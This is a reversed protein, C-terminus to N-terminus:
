QQLTYFGMQQDARLSVTSEDGDVKVEADIKVWPGGASDAGMLSYGEANVPWSLVIAPEIRLLEIRLVPPAVAQLVELSRFTALAGTSDNSLDRGFSQGMFGAPRALTDVFTQSYKASPNDAAWATTIVLAGGTTDNIAVVQLVVDTNVPDLPTELTMQQGTFSGTAIRGDGRINGFYAGGDGGNEQSQARTYVGAYAMEDSVRVVARASLDGSLVDRGDKQVTTLGLSFGELQFPETLVMDGNAIEITSPWGGPIISVPADDSVSGDEFDDTFPAFPTVAPDEEWAVAYPRVEVSRFQASAGRSIAGSRGFGIGFDGTPRMSSDSGTLTYIKEPKSVAWARVTARSGVVDLQLVVDETTPDLDTQLTKPTQPVPAEMRLLGDGRISGYTWRDFGWPFPPGQEGKAWITAYALEDSVRVVARASIDGAVIPLGNKRAQLVGASFDDGPFHQGDGAQRPNKLILSGDEIAATCPYWSPRITWTVPQDNNIPDSFTDKFAFFPTTQASVVSPLALAYVALSFM